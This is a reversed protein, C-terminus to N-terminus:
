LVKHLSSATFYSGVRLTDSWTVQKLANIKGTGRPSGLCLSWTVQELDCLCHLVFESSLCGSDGAVLKVVLDDRCKTHCLYFVGVFSSAPATKADHMEASGVFPAMIWLSLSQPVTVILFTFPGGSSLLGM